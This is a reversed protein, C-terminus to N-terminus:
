HGTSQYRKVGFRWFGASLCLFLVGIAPALHALAQSAGHPDAKGLLALAPFYSVFALPIIFTFFNRFWDRYISMPYSGAETGGYTFINVVEISQVTWFCLTAGIVHLGIFFCVGGALAALLFVFKAPTWDLGLQASAICFVIVGQSLRGLRLLQFQHAFVQYFTGLPRILMNDFEGRIILSPFVDFGRGIMEAFAFATHIMGYLLAVEWLSWAKLGQFRSFLLAITLFDLFTICFHSAISALFSIRYEMQSKIRTKVYRLYLSLAHLM